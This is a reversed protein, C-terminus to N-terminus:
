GIVRIYWDYRSDDLAGGPLVARGGARELLDVTIEAVDCQLVVDDITRALKYGVLEGTLTERIERTGKELCAIVVIDGLSCHRVEDACVREWDRNRDLNLIM